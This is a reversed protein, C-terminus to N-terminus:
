QRVKRCYYLETDFIGHEPIDERSYEVEFGLNILYVELDKGYTRYAIIGKGNESNTDGHYEPELLHIDQSPDDANNIQIRILTEKWERNHPVTFIYIGGLRLVRHIEHHARDDLRVHEMVDSTVIIDFSEDRFTLCELNQNTIGASIREGLRRNPKYQSLHVDIWKTASLFDPLPYSCNEYYFPPQTDYFHLKRRTSIHPLSALSQASMDRLEHIARLIGRTISRYRSTTLCHECILSERWLSIHTYFLRTNNGCVNCIGSLYQNNKFTNRTFREDEMDYTHPLWKGWKAEYIAKNREFLEQRDRSRLKNFSASLHHHIFVDKACVIRLKLQEIRRCYDDDEFFGKGFAEDLPGVRTYVDRPMMVCFFAATNLPFTWGIHQRTYKASVQLMEAMNEYTIDIRAQNGINNTVPCILGVSKDRQLHRVLTRVWNPTVYTDNNLLVVYEGDAVCLGQNNAAAFGRNEDNLILRRNSAGSAWELLFKKTGDTSANDVVIIGLRPYNSHEDLSALCARTLDVNNYTVVIVCVQPDDTASEAQAILTTIRHMWTQEKAFVQRCKVALNPEQEDLSNEVATLFEETNITIRVLEGFQKMEPLDVSVVPKGASLYEYVKVPNTALTLPIVKFPILCVDFSYLYHPLAEYPVEGIFKINPLLALNSQANVTDAGILLICCAPFRLAVAKILDQDFWEAIAGYYGIISRGESDSYTVAPRRGFHDFDGANRILARRKAYPSVFQDLWASTTITLDANQLLVTELSLVEARTTGFGEHHDMCDYIVRSNPLVTAIDYWFPHQILSILQGTNAWELLWGISMRLQSVTEITPASSYIQPAGKAYLKIQFLNRKVNLCEMDFGSREDDVLRESIYFVRRGTNILALALQQPRQHRFHWDIVGWIIYDAAAIQQEIPRISPVEFKVGKLLGKRLAQSPRTVIQGYFWRIIKKIPLPLPLRHYVM